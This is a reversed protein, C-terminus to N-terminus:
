PAMLERATLRLEPDPSHRLEDLLPFAAEGAQRLQERAARRVEYRDDGLQVILARLQREQDPSLAGPKAVGVPHWQQAAAAAAFQAEPLDAVQGNAHLVTRYGDQVVPLAALIKRQDTDNRGLGPCYLFEVPLAGPAARYVIDERTVQELQVLTQLDPPFLGQREDAYAIMLLGLEALRVWHIDPDTSPNLPAIRVLRWEGAQRVFDVRTYAEQQADLVLVATPPQARDHLREGFVEANAMEQELPQWWKALADATGGATHHFVPSGIPLADAFRKAACAQQFRQWVQRPGTAPLLATPKGGLRDFAARAAPLLTPAAETRLLWALDELAPGPQSLAEHAQARFFRASPLLANGPVEHQCVQTFQAIAPAYEKRQLHQLGQHFAGTIALWIALTLGITEM